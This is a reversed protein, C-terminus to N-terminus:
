LRIRKRISNWVPLVDPSLNLYVIGSIYLLGFVASRLVIWGMGQQGSFLWHTLLFCVGGLLLTYLTKVTFPQMNMKKWLFVYRIGNYVTLAILNSIATGVPGYGKTLFYNLGLALALLVVGTLFEFRWYISTSIIQSNVGTGLDVIRMIGIFLFVDQAKLYDEKLHLTLVGDTFNVWVLVFMGTAFILQNISSRHYVRNIKGYDKDKWAQSLPGISAAIIARQPAQVLSAVNQALTYIGVYHMANPIVAAIVLSDFVQSINYILSGSWMFACLAIIKKYFRRTVNSISFHLFLRKTVVLYTFLIIAIGIYTFAYIKIFLDFRTILGTFVCVILITTFLRFQVERLFSTFVSKGFQWAFAELLSFITLGFGFPFLWYYYKLLEPSHASYNWIVYRKFVIGSFIVLAFGIFSILLSWAFQDNKTPELNDKYYPYFNYVYSIMGLNAFSFMVNAVALFVGILGYQEVTFGRAFLYTNFFGLAFGFYVVVSSIISQRRINSM